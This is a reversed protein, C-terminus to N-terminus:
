LHLNAIHSKAHAHKKDIYCFFTNLIDNVFAKLKMLKKAIFCLIYMMLFVLGKRKRDNIEILCMFAQLKVHQWYLM